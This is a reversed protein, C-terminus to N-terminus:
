TTAREARGPRYVLQRLLAEAPGRYSRRQMVQAAVLSVLWVATASAAAAFTPSAAESGLDLMFPWALVAWAVSHFLYGSLSRQGLATLASVVVNERPAPMATMLAHSLLGFLAVYGVGGFTGSVEYLLKM